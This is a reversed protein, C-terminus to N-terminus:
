MDVSKLIAKRTFTYMIPGIDKGKQFYRRFAIGYEGRAEYGLSEMTMTAKDVEQINRLVPFM